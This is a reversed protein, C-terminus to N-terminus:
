VRCSQVIGAWSRRTARIESRAPPRLCPERPTKGPLNQCCADRGGPKEEDSVPPIRSCPRPRSRPREGPPSERDAQGPLLLLLRISLGILLDLVRFNQKQQDLQSPAVAPLIVGRISARNASTVFSFSAWTAAQRRTCWPKWRVRRGSWDGVPRVPDEERPGVAQECARGQAVLSGAIALRPIRRARASSSRALITLSGATSARMRPSSAWARARWARAGAVAFEILRALQCGTEERRYSGADCRRWDRRRPNSLFPMDGVQSTWRRIIKQEIIREGAGVLKAALGVRPRPSVREQSMASKDDFWKQGCPHSARPNKRTPCLSDSGMEHRRLRSPPNLRM